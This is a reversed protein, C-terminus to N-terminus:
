ARQDQCTVQAIGMELGLRQLWCPFQAPTQVGPQLKPIQAIQPAQDECSGEQVLMRGEKQTDPPRHTVQSLCVQWGGACAEYGKFPKLSPPNSIHLGLAGTLLARAENENEQGSEDLYVM